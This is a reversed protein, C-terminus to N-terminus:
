KKKNRQKERGKKWSKKGKVSKKRLDKNEELSILIKRKNSIRYLSEDIDRTFESGKRPRGRRRVSGEGATFSNARKVREVVPTWLIEEEKSEEKESEM